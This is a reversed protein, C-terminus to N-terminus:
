LSGGKLALYAKAEDIGLKVTLLMKGFDEIDDGSADALIKLTERRKVVYHKRGKWATAFGFADRAQWLHSSLTWGEALNPRDRHCPRPCTRGTLTRWVQMFFCAILYTRRASEQLIWVRWFERSAQSDHLPFDHLPANPEAGGWGPHNLDSDWTISGALRHTSSELESFTAEASTRAIVDGDFFRIIQYLMLAQIRALAPRFEVPMESGLLDNVKADICRMIVPGNTANKSAYLACASMAELFLTLAPM